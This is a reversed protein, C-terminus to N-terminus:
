SRIDIILNKNKFIEKIVYGEDMKSGVTFKIFGYEKFGNVVEFTPVDIQIYPYEAKEDYAFLYYKGNECLVMDGVQVMHDYKLHRNDHIEM